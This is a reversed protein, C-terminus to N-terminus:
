WEKVPFDKIKIGGFSREFGGGMIKRQLSYKKGFRM